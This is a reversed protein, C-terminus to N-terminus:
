ALDRAFKRCLELARAEIQRIREKTVGFMDALKQLTMRRHGFAGFRYMLIERHKEPLKKLLRLLEDKQLGNLFDANVPLFLEGFTDGEYGDPTNIPADLSVVSSLYPILTRVTEADLGTARSIDGVDACDSDSTLARIRRLEEVKNGPLRVALENQDAYKWMAQLIWFKAYSLFRNGTAPDYKEAARMLGLNAESVLDDYDLAPHHSHFEGAIKLLFRQNKIVLTNRATIDGGLAKEGLRAEQEATLLIVDQCTRYHTENTTSHRRIIIGYIYPDPAFVPLNGSVLKNPLWEGSKPCHQTM